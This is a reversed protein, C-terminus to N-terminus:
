IRLTRPLVSVESLIIVVPSPFTLSDLHIILIPTTHRTLRTIQFFMRQWQMLRKAHLKLVRNCLWLLMAIWSFTIWLLLCIHIWLLSLDTSNNVLSSISARIMSKPSICLIARSYSILYSLDNTGPPSYLLSCLNHTVNSRTQYVSSVVTVYSACM